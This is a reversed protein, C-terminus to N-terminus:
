VPQPQLPAEGCKLQVFNGWENKKDHPCATYSKAGQIAGSIDGLNDNLNWYGPTTTPNERPDEVFNWWLYKTPGGSSDVAM